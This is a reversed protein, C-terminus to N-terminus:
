LNLRKKTIDRIIGQMKEIGEIYPIIVCDSNEKAIELFGERVRQHYELGKQAFRNSSIEKMLGRKPDIDIIFTLDPKIGRTALRNLKKIWDLDMKGGYGQYAITSYGSRDSVITKEQELSPIIEKKFLDSRGAEFLFLETLPDIEDKFNLLKERIESALPTYGPEHVRKCPIGKEFLYKNLYFSQTSKGCGEGGEFVIYNGKTM